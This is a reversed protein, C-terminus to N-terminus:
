KLNIQDRDIFKDYNSVIVTEGKKIGAKITAVESNIVGYKIARKEAIDGNVVYLFRNKGSVIYEGRKLTLQDELESIIVECSVSGGLIFSDFTDLLSVESYLLKEGKSGETVVSNILSIEGNYKRKDYTVVVKTGVSVEEAFKVPIYLEIYPTSLDGVQLLTKGTDVKEGEKIKVDLVTGSFSSKINLDDLKQNIKELNSNVIDMDYTILEKDLERDEILDLYSINLDELEELTLDLADKSANLEKLTISNLEYLSEAKTAEVKAKKVSVKKKEINRKINRENRSYETRNKLITRRVKKLENEYKLKDDQLSESDLSMLIDGKSIYDGAKTFIEMCLSDSVATISKRKLIEVKGTISISKITDRVKVDETKYDKLVFTDKKPSIYLYTLGILTIFVSLTIIINLRRKKHGPKKINRINVIPETSSM